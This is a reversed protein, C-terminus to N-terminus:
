PPDEATTSTQTQKLVVTALRDGPDLSDFHRWSMVYVFTSFCEGCCADPTQIKWVISADHDSFNLKLAVLWWVDRWSEEDQRLDETPPNTCFILSWRVWRPRWAQRRCLHTLSKKKKLIDRSIGVSDSSQSAGCVSLFSVNGAVSVLVDVDDGSRQLQVESLQRDGEDRVVSVWAEYFSCTPRWAKQTHNRLSARSFRPVTLSSRHTASIVSGSFRRSDRWSAKFSSGGAWQSVSRYRMAWRLLNSSVTESWRKKTNNKSVSETRQREMWLSGARSPCGWTWRSGRCRRRGSASSPARAPRLSPAWRCGIGSVRPPSAWWWRPRTTRLPFLSKKCAALLLVSGSPRDFCVTSVDRHFFM